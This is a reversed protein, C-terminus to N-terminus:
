TLGRGLLLGVLAGLLAVIIFQFSVAQDVKAELRRLDARLEALDATHIRSYLTEASSERKPPHADVHPAAPTPAPSPSLPVGSASLSDADLRSAEGGRGADILAARVEEFSPELALQAALAARRERDPEVPELAASAPKSATVLDFVVERVTAPEASPFAAELRRELVPDAFRAPASQYWAPGDSEPSM